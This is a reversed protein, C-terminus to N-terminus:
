LLPGPAPTPGQLSQWPWGAALSRDAQPRLGPWASELARIGGLSLRSPWTPRWPKCRRDGWPAGAAPAPLLPADGCVRPEPHLPCLYPTSTGPPPLVSCLPPSGTSRPFSALLAPASGPPPRTPATHGTPLPRPAHPAPGTGPSSGPHESCVLGRLAGMLFRILRPVRSQASAFAPHPRTLRLSSAGRRETWAHLRCGPAARGRSALCSPSVPCTRAWSLAPPRSSDAAPASRPSEPTRARPRPRPEARVGGGSALDPGEPRVAVKEAEQTGGGDVRGTNSLLSPDAPDGGAPCTWRPASEPTQSTQAGAPLSGPFRLPSWAGERRWAPLRGLGPLPQWPSSPPLRCCSRWSHLALDRQSGGWGGVPRGGSSKETWRLCVWVLCPM